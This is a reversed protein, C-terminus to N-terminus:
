IYGCKVPIWKDGSKKILRFPKGCGHLGNKVYADCRSKSTHPNIQIMKNKIKGGITTKTLMSGHRFITCNIESKYVLVGGGCHPCDFILPSAKDIKKKVTIPHIRRSELSKLARDINIKGAILNNRIIKVTSM